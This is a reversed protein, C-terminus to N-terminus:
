GKSEALLREIADKFQAYPKAGVLRQTARITTEGPKTLGLFFTPTGRVGARRGALLDKGIAGKYRDSELCAAFAERDLTVAETLAAWDKRALQKQAAFLEDHVEWYKGQEGACRAATAAGMAARHISQIPFDRFVYRVKGTEVYEKILRPLTARMFRACFPCQYDSFEILTVKADARGLAAAGETSLDVEAIPAPGRRQQILAQLEDLEELIKQQGRKLEEVERKLAEIESAPQALVPSAGIAMLFVAALALPLLRALGSFGAMMPPAM